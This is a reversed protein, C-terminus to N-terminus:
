GHRDMGMNLGIQPTFRRAKSLAPQTAPQPMPNGGLPTATGMSGAPRVPPYMQDVTLPIKPAPKSSYNDMLRRM